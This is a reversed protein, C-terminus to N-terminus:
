GNAVGDKAGFEAEWQEPSLPEDTVAARLRVDANLSVETAKRKPACYGALESAIKVRLDPSTDPDNLIDVLVDFPNCGHAKLLEQVHLTAKNPQGPKRGSGPIKAHGPSFTV